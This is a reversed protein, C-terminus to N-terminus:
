KLKIVCLVIYVTLQPRAETALLILFQTNVRGIGVMSRNRTFLDIALM